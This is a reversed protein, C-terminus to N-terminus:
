AHSASTVILVSSAAPRDLCPCLPIPEELTSQTTSSFIVFLERRYGREALFRVAFEGEPRNQYLAGSILVKPAYGLKGLEAGLLARPGYFDGGLILILDAQEPRQSLLLFKALWTLTLPYAIGGLLLFVLATGAVWLRFTGYCRAIRMKINNILTPSESGVMIVWSSNQFGGDIRPGWPIRMPSNM